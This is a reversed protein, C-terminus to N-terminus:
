FPIAEQQLNFILRDNIGKCVGDVGPFLVSYDIGLVELEKRIQHKMNRSIRYKTIQKNNLPRNPLNSYIFCGHQGIIRETIHSPHYAFSNTREFLNDDSVNEYRRGYTAAVLAGDYKEEPDTAFFLAILPSTTFDLLRTACGHHQMLCLWEIDSEPRHKLYPVSRKKFDALSQKELELVESWDDPFYRGISPKLEWDFNSHGRFITNNEIRIEKLIKPVLDM